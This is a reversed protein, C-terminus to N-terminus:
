ASPMQSTKKLLPRLAILTSRRANDQAVQLIEDVGLDGLEEAQTELYGLDPEVTRSRSQPLPQLAPAGEILSSRFSTAQSLFLTSQSLASM